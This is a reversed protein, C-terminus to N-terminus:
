RFTKEKYSKSNSISLDQAVLRKHSGKETTVKYYRGSEERDLKASLLEKGSHKRRQYHSGKGTPVKYYRWSEVRDLKASLLLM